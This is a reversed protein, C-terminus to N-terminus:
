FTFELLRHKKGEALLTDREKLATPRFREAADIMQSLLTVDSASVLTSINQSLVFCMASYIENGTVLPRYWTTYPRKLIPLSRYKEEWNGKAISKIVMVGIDRKQVIKMLKGFQARYGTDAYFIFNFPFMITDFEFLGLAHTLLELNHSTIGISHVIGQDRAGLITEMAGGPGLATRLESLEDVSHLQYLNFYDTHLRELSRHLESYADNKTRMLTKCGLFFNERHRRMWPGVRKEAEGYEPAVDIHNIGKEILMEMTRDASKQSLKMFTAGGFSVLTSM